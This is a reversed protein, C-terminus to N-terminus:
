GRQKITGRLRRSKSTSIRYAFGNQTADCDLEGATDCKYRNPAHEDDAAVVSALLALLLIPFATFRM